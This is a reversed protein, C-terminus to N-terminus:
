DIKFRSLSQPMASLIKDYDIIRREINVVGQENASVILAALKRNYNTYHNTPRDFPDNRPAAVLTDGVVDTHHGSVDVTEHIHGHLGLLGGIEEFYKRVAQSGIPIHDRMQDVNTAYPPAHFVYITKQPDSLPRIRDSLQAELSNTKPITRFDIKFYGKVETTYGDFGEESSSYGELRNRSEKDGVMQSADSLDWKEWDKNVFPTINVYSNGVVSLGNPLRHVREHLLKLKCNDSARELIDMNVKFDDNSMMTYIEIGTNNRFEDFLPIMWEEYFDRQAKPNRTKHGFKWHAGDKENGEKPAIDGGFIVGELGLEFATCLASLYQYRNGHVDATYLFRYEQAM